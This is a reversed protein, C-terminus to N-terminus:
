HLGSSAVEILPTDGSYKKIRVQGSRHAAGDTLRVDFGAAFHYQEPLGHHFLEEPAVGIWSTLRHAYLSEM